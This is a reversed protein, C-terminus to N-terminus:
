QRDKLLRRCLKRWLEPTRVTAWAALKIPLPLRPNRGLQRDHLGAQIAIVLEGYQVRYAAPTERRLIMSALYVLKEYYFANASQQLKPWQPPVSERILLACRRQDDISQVPLGHSMSAPHQRYHYGVFDCFVCGPVQSFIRWNALLDENYLIGNELLTELPLAASYFKNWVGYDIRHDHLLADLHQPARLVKFHKPPVLNDPTQGDTFFDRRCCAVPMGSETVARHMAALFDPHQLDDADCFAFWRPNFQRATQVGTVRAACLGGNKKHVVLFRGDCAAIDECIAPTADTSGDDVLVCLFNDFHQAAISDVCASLYKAGNYVPVIVAIECHPNSM